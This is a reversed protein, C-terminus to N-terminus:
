AYSCIGSDDSVKRADINTRTAISMWGDIGIILIVVAVFHGFVFYALHLSVPRQSIPCLPHPSHFPSICHTCPHLREFDFSCPVLFFPIVFAPGSPIFATSYSPCSTYLIPTVM